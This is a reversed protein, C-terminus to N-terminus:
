QGVEQLRHNSEEYSLRQLHSQILTELNPVPTLRFVMVLTRILCAPLKSILCPLLCLSRLPLPQPSAAVLWPDGSGGPHAHGHWRFQCRDGAGPCCPQMATAVRRRAQPLATTVPAFACLLLDCYLWPATLPCHLYCLCHLCAVQEPDSAADAGVPDAGPEGAVWNRPGARSLLKRLM